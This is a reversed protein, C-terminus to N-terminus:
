AVNEKNPFFEFEGCCLFSVCSWLSLKQWSYSKSLHFVSEEFVIKYRNIRPREEEEEEKKKKLLDATAHRKM